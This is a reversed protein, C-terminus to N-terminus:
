QLMFQVTEAAGIRLTALTPLLERYSEALRVIMELLLRDRLLYGVTFPQRPFHQRWLLHVKALAAAAHIVPRTPRFVRTRVNPENGEGAKWGLDGAAFVATNEATLRLGEVTIEVGTQRQEIFPLLRWAGTVMRDKIRNSGEKLVRHAEGDGMLFFGPKLAQPKWAFEADAVALQMIAERCLARYLRTRKTEHDVGPHALYVLFVAGAEYVPLSTVKIAIIERPM